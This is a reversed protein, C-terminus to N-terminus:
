NETVGQAALKARNREEQLDLDELRNKTEDVTKNYEEQVQNKRNQNGCASCMLILAVIAFISIIKKM